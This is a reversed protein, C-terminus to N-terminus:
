VYKVPFAKAEVLASLESHPWVEKVDLLMEVIFTLKSMVEPRSFSTPDEILLQCSKM